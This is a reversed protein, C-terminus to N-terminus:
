FISIIPEPGSAWDVQVAVGLMPGQYHSGGTFWEGNEGRWIDSWTDSMIWQIIRRDGPRMSFQATMDEGHYGDPSGIVTFDRKEGALIDVRAARMAHCEVRIWEAIYRGLM